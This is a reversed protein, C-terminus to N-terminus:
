RGSFMGPPFFRMCDEFGSIGPSGNKITDFILQMSLHGNGIINELNFVSCVDFSFTLSCWLNCIFLILGSVEKNSYSLLLKSLLLLTKCLHYLM